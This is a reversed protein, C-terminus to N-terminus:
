ASLISDVIRDSAGRGQALYAGCINMAKMRGVDSLSFQVFDFFSMNKDLMTIVGVEVLENIENSLKRGHYICIPLNFAAPELCNHHGKNFAGGIYAMSAMGFLSFLSGISNIILINSEIFSTNETLFEWKLNQHMLVDTIRKVNSLSVDHPVIVHICEKLRSIDVMLREHDSTYISGYVIIPKNLIPKTLSLAEKKAIVTDIRPDGAVTSNFIKHDSLIQTTLTSTTFIQDFHTFINKFPYLFPHFYYPSRLLSFAILYKKCEHTSVHKLLNWWLENKVLIFISPNISKVLTSMHSSRDFPLYFVYDAVDENKINVFGSPSFFSLAFFYTPQNKRLKSIVERGQEFEGLSSCHMWVVAKHEPNFAPSQIYGLHDKQATIWRKISANFISLFSITASLCRILLEYLGLIIM